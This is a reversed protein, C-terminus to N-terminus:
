RKENRRLNDYFYDFRLINQVDESKLNKLIEKEEDTTLLSDYWDGPKGKPKLSSSLMRSWFARM